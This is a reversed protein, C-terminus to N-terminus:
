CEGDAGTYVDTGEVMLLDSRGSPQLFTVGVRAAGRLREIQRLWVSMHNWSVFIGSVAEMALLGIRQVRGGAQGASATVERCRILEEFWDRM